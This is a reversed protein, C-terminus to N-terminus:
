TNFCNTLEHGNRHIRQSLHKIIPEKGHILKFSCMPVYGVVDVEAVGGYFQEM